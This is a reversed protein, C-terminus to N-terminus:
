RNPMARGFPPRESLRLDPVPSPERLWEDLTRPQRQPPRTTPIDAAESGRSPGLMAGPWVNGAGDVRASYRIGLSSIFEGQGTPRDHDFAGVYRHGEPFTLIGPGSAQGRRFRGTFAKGDEWEMRAPGELRGDAFGGEAWGAPAGDRYWELVGGGHAFGKRCPGTWRVTDGDGPQQLRVRCGSERDTLVTEAVSGRAVALITLLACAALLVPSTRM